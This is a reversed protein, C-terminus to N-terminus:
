SAPELQYDELKILIENRRLFPPTFPDNYRALKYGEKAKLEDLLLAGRLKREADTVEFDLPWGGFTGVAITATEEKSRVIRADNPIPLSEPESGLREEVPFSMKGSGGQGATTYVPTTMEMKTGWKNEGFIYSALDNFGDGSGPKATAPMSIEATLYSRYQRIEYEKTKKYVVYKPTDLKPSTRGSTLQGLLFALGEVSLFSNDQVGDWVDRQAMLKGGALVDITYISQGTFVLRQVWPTFRPTMEMTWRTAIETDGTVNTSHVTFDVKFLARLAKLSNQFNEIGSYKTVPDQFSFKKDYKEKDLKGTEFISALEGLLFLKAMGQADKITESSALPRPSSDAPTATSASPQTVSAVGTKGPGTSFSGSTSGSSLPIESARVCTRNLRGLRKTSHAFGNRLPREIINTLSADMRFNHPM